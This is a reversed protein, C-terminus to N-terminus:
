NTPDLHTYGKWEWTVEETTGDNLLQAIILIIIGPFLLYDYQALRHILNWMIVKKLMLALSEIIIFWGTIVQIIEVIRKMM